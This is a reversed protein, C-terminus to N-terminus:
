SKIAVNFSLFRAMGKDYDKRIFSQNIFCDLGCEM